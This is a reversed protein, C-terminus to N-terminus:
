VQSAGQCFTCRGSGEGPYTCCCGAGAWPIHTHSVQKVIKVRDPRYAIYDHRPSHSRHQVKGVQCQPLAINNLASELQVKRGGLERLARRLDGLEQSPFQKGDNQDLAKESRVIIGETPLAQGRWSPILESVFRSDEELLPVSRVMSKDIDQCGGKKTLIKSEADEHASGINILRVQLRVFLIRLSTGSGGQDTDDHV